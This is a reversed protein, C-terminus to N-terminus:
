FPMAARVTLTPSVIGVGSLVSSGFPASPTCTTVVELRRNPVSGIVNATVGLSACQSASAGLRGVILSKVQAQSTTGAVVAARTAYSTADALSHRTGLVRGVHVGGVVLLVIVPVTLAFEVAVAGRERARVREGM